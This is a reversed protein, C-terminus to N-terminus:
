RGNEDGRSAILVMQHVNNKQIFPKSIIILRKKGEMKM